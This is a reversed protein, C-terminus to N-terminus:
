LGRESTPVIAQPNRDGAACPGRELGEAMVDFGCLKM